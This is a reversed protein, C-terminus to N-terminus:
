PHSEHQDGLRKLEKVLRAHWLLHDKLNDTKSFCIQCTSDPRRQAIQAALTISDYNDYYYM